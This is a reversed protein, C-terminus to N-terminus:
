DDRDDFAGNRQLEFVAGWQCLAAPKRHGCWV